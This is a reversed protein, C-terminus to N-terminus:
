VCIKDKHISLTMSHRTDCRPGTEFGVAGLDSFLL